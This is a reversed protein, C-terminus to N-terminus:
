KEFYQCGTARKLELKVFGKLIVACFILKGGNQLILMHLRDSM